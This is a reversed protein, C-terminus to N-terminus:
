SLKRTYQRILVLTYKNETTNPIDAGSTMCQLPSTSPVGKSLAKSKIGKKHRDVQSGAYNKRNTAQIKQTHAIVGSMPEIHDQINQARRLGKMIQSITVM